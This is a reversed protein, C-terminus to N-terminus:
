TQEAVEQWLRVVRIRYLATYDVFVILSVNSFSLAIGNMSTLVLHCYYGSCVLSKMVNFGCLCRVLFSFNYFLLKAAKRDSTFHVPPRTAARERYVRSGQLISTLQKLFKVDDRNNNVRNSKPTRHGSITNTCTNKNSTRAWKVQQSKQYSM